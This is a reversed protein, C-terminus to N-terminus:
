ILHDGGRHRGGVLQDALVRDVKNISPMSRSGGTFTMAGMAFRSVALGSQGLMAYQM